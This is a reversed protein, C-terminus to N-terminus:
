NRRPRKPAPDGPEVAQDVTLPNPVAGRERRVSVDLIRGDVVETRDEIAALAEDLGEPTFRLRGLADAVEGANFGAAELWRRASQEPFTLVAAMMDVPKRDVPLPALVDPDLGLEALKARQAIYADPARVSVTNVMDNLLTAVGNPAGREHRADIYRQIAVVADDITAPLPPYSVNVTM